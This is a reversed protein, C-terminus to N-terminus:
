TRQGTSMIGFNTNYLQDHTSTHDEYDMVTDDPRRMIMPQISM